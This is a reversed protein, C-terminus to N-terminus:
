KVGNMTRKLKLLEFCFQRAPVAAGAMFRAVDANVTPTEWFEFSVRGGHRSAGIVKHGLCVLFAVIYIHDSSFIPRPNDEM